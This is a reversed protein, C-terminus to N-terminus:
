SRLATVLRHFLAPSVDSPGTQVVASLATQPSVGELVVLAGAAICVSRNMGNSCCVLVSVESSLLTATTEVALRLLWLREDDGDNIPFRCRILDRPLQTMPENDALEVIAQIGLQLIERPNSFDGINGIWLDFNPVKRM